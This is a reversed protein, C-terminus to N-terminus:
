RSRLEVRTGRERELEPAGARARARARARKRVQFGDFYRPQLSGCTLLHHIGAGAVILPAGVILLARALAGRQSAWLFAGLSPLDLAGPASDCVLADVRAVRADGDGDGDGAARAADSARRMLRGLACWLMGGGNSFLHVVTPGAAAAQLRPLVAKAVEDYRAETFPESVGIQCHDTVVVVAAGAFRERYADAYKEVHKPAAGTWGLLFCTLGGVPREVEGPDVRAMTRTM